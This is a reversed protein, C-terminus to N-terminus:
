GSVGVTKATKCAWFYRSRVFFGAIPMCKIFSALLLILLAAGTHGVTEFDISPAGVIWQIWEVIYSLEPAPYPEHKM